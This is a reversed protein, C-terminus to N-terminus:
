WDVAEALAEAIVLQAAKGPHCDDASVPLLGPGHKKEYAVFEPSLDVFQFRPNGLLPKVAQDIEPPRDMSVNCPNPIRVFTLRFGHTRASDLWASLEQNLAFTALESDQQPPRASPMREQWDWFPVGAFDRLLAWLINKAKFDPSLDVELDHKYWLSSHRIRPEFTNQTRTWHPVPRCFPPRSIACPEVNRALHDDIFGYIIHPPHLDLYRESRVRAARTNYGAVAVNYTPHGYKRELIHGFSDEFNVGMAYAFSCGALLTTGHPDPPTMSEGIRAARHDTFEFGLHYRVYLNPALQYGLESDPVRIPNGIRRYHDHHYRWARWTYAGACILLAISFGFLLTLINKERASLASM